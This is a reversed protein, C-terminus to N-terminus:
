NVLTKGMADVASGIALIKVIINAISKAAASAQDGMM